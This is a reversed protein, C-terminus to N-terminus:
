LLCYALAFTVSRSTGIERCKTWPRVTNFIVAEVFHTVNQSAQLPTEASDRILRAVDQASPEGYEEYKEKKGMSQCLDEAHLRIM